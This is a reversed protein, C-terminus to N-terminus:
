LTGFTAFSIAFADVDEGHVGCGTRLGLLLYTLVFPIRSRERKMRRRLIQVGCVFDRIEIATVGPRHGRVGYVGAGAV